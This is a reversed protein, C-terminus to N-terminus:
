KNRFRLFWVAIGAGMAGVLGIIIYMSYKVYIPPELITVM